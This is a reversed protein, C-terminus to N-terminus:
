YIKYDFEKLGGDDYITLKLYVQYDYDYSYVTYKLEESRYIDDPDTPKGYISEIESLTSGNKIGGPLTFSVPTDSFSNRVTIAWFQCETIDKAGTGLNVFGINVDADSFKSSELKITSTTKDNANLIYGDAYGLRALDISWGNATLDTYNSNLKYSVGDLTFEGSKWDSSVNESVTSNDDNIVSEDESIVTDDRIVDNNNVSDDVPPTLIEDNSFLFKYAVVGFVVVVVLVLVVIIVVKNNSKKSNVSPQMNNVNDYYSQNMGVNNMNNNVGNNINSNMNNSMNNDMNMGVNNMNNNMGNNINGNMNNSMNNDMNMGVNNMNNNMNNNINSNV